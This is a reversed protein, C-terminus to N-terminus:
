KIVVTESLKKGGPEKYCQLDDYHPLNDPPGIETESIIGTQGESLQQYYKEFTTITLSPSEAKMMKQRFIQFKLENDMFQNVM